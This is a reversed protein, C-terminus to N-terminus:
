LLAKRLLQPPRYHGAKKELFESLLFTQEMLRHAMANEPMLGNIEDRFVTACSPELVVMPIGAAIQPALRDLVHLLYKKARDLFGYDYLPRGCCFHEQPVEIQFGADELVTVAARATDPFFHNNFTDPWLVVKPKGQNRPGA